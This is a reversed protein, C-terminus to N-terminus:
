FIDNEHTRTAAEQFLSCNVLAIRRLTYGISKEMYAVHGRATSWSACLSETLIRIVCNVCNADEKCLAIQNIVTHSDSSHRTYHCRHTQGSMRDDGTSWLPSPHLVLAHWRDRNHWRFPRVPEFFGFRREVLCFDVIPRVSKITLWEVGNNSNCMKATFMRVRIEEDECRGWLGTLPSETRPRRDHGSVRRDASIGQGQSPRCRHARRQVLMTAFESGAAADRHFLHCHALRLWRRIQTWRLRRFEPRDVVM